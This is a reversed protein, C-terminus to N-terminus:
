HKMPFNNRKTKIIMDFVCLGPFANDNYAAGYNLRNNAPKGGRSGPKSGPEPLHSKHHVSHRQFLNEALAETEGALRQEVLNEMM